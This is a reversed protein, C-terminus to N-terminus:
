VYQVGKRKSMFKTITECIKDLNTLRYMIYQIMAEINKSSPLLVQPIDDLIRRLSNETIKKQFMVKLDNFNQCDINMQNLFKKYQPMNKNIVELSYYDHKEIGQKLTSDSWLSQGVLVHTHDIAYLKLGDKTYQLLLNGINRDTNFILHDFLLIKYFDSLNVLKPVMISKIPFAKPLLKSYFCYGYNDSTICNSHIITKDDVKGIGSEPMPLSVLTALKYFYYENFIVIDGEPNNHVKIILLELDDSSAEKPDTIGNNISGQISAIHKINSDM